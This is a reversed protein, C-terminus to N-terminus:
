LRYLDAALMEDFTLSNYQAHLRMRPQQATDANGRCVRILGM